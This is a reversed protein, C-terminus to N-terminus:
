EKKALKDVSQPSSDYLLDNSYFVLKTHKRHVSNESLINWWLTRRALCIDNGNKAQALWKYATIAYNNVANKL